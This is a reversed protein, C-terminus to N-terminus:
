EDEKLGDILDALLGNNDDEGKVIRLKQKLLETEAKLKEVELKAKEADQQSQKTEETLQLMFRVASQWNKSKLDVAAKMITKAIADSGSIKKISGDSDTINYDGDLVAQMAKRLDAKQKRKKASARAGQRAIERQRSPAIEDFGHGELNKDNM